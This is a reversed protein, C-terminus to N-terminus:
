AVLPIEAYSSAFIPIHALFRSALSPISLSKWRKKALKKLNMCAFTLAAKVVMRAKGYEQTYRFGHLEKALGFSREITEKRLQYYERIGYTHRNEEVAEIYDEDVVYLPLDESSFDCRSNSCRFSFDFSRSSKKYKRYGPFSIKAKKVTESVCTGDEPIFM